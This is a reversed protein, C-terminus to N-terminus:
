FRVILNSSPTEGDMNTPVPKANRRIPKVLDHTDSASVDAHSDQFEDTDIIDCILGIAAESNHKRNPRLQKWDGKREVVFDIYDADVTPVSPSGDSGSREAGAEAPPDWPGLLTGSPDSIMSTQKLPYLRGFFPEERDEADFTNRTSGIPLPPQFFIESFQDIPTCLRTATKIHQWRDMCCVYSRDRPFDAVKCWSGPFEGYTDALREDEADTWQGFKIKPGLKETIRERVQEEDRCNLKSFKKRRQPEFATWDIHESAFVHIDAPMHDDVYSECVALLLRDEEETWPRSSARTRRPSPMGEMEGALSVALSGQAESFYLLCSKELSRLIAPDKDLPEHM